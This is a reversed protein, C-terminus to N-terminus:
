NRVCVCVSVGVGGGFFFFVCLFFLYLPSGQMVEIKQSPLLQTELSYPEFFFRDDVPYPRISVLKLAHSFSSFLTLSHNEKRGQLVVLIFQILNIICYQFTSLEEMEVEARM